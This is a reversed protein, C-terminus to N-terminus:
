VRVVVAIDFDLDGFGFACASRHLRLHARQGRPGSAKWQERLARYQIAIALLSSAARASAGCKLSNGIVAPAFNGGSTALQGCSAVDSSRNIERCHPGVPVGSAFMPM